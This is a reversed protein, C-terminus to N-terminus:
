IHNEIADRLTTPIPTSDNQDNVCVITMSGEAMPDEKRYVDYDYTISTNGLNEVSFFLDLVDDYLIEDLYNCQLSVRPFNLSTLESYPYGLYRFFEHDALEFYYPLNTFHIRQAKDTARWSVRVTYRFENKGCKELTGPQNM